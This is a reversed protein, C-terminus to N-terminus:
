STAARERAQERLLDAVRKISGVGVAHLEGLGGSDPEGRALLSEMAGPVERPDCVPTVLGPRMWGLTGADDRPRVSM